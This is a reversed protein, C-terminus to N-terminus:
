LTPWPYERGKKYSARRAISTGDLYTAVWKGDHDEIISVECETNLPFANREDEDNVTVCVFGDKWRTLVVDGFTTIMNAPM